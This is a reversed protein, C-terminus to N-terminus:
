RAIVMSILAITMLVAGWWAGDSIKKQQAAIEAMQVTALHANEPAKVILGLAFALIGAVSGFTLALGVTSSIRRLM